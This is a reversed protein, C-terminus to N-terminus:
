FSRQSQNTFDEFSTSIKEGEVFNLRFCVLNIGLSLPRSACLYLLLLLLTLQKLFGWIGDGNKSEISNLPVCCSDIMTKLWIFLGVLLSTNIAQLGEVM